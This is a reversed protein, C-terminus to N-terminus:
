VWMVHNVWCEVYMMDRRRWSTSPGWLGCLFTATELRLTFSPFVLTTFISLSLCFTELSGCTCTPLEMNLLVYCLCQHTHYLHMNFADISGCPNRCLYITRFTQSNVRSGQFLSTVCNRTHSHNESWGLQVCCYLTIWVVPGFWAQRAQNHWSAPVMSLLVIHFPFGLWCPVTQTLGITDVLWDHTVCGTSWSVCSWSWLSEPSKM